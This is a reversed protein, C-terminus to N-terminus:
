PRDQKHIKRAMLINALTSVLKEFSNPKIIFEAGLKKFGSIEKDNSTTSYMIVPIHKLDQNSKLLTLCKKGDVVPMNIDLFILDPFIVLDHTLLRYAEGGDHAVICKISSDVQNIAECFLECDEEDDDVALIFM